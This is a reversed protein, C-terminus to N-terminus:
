HIREHQERSHTRLRGHLHKRHDQDQHHLPVGGQRTVTPSLLSWDFHLSDNSHLFDAPWVMIEWHTCLVAPVWVTLTRSSRTSFGSVSSAEMTSAKKPTSTLSTPSPPSCWVQKMTHSATCSRCTVLPLINIKGRQLNWIKRSLPKWWWKRVECDFIYNNFQGCSPLSMCHVANYLPATDCMTVEISCLAILLPINM